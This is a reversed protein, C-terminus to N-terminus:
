TLRFQKGCFSCIYKKEAKHSQKHKYLNKACTFGRSCVDCIFNYETNHTKIHTSLIDKTTYTKQCIDCSYRVGLHDRKIHRTLGEKNSFAKECKDCRYPLGDVCSHKLTHEKFNKKVVIGCINCLHPKESKNKKKPPKVIPEEELESEELIAEPSMPIEYDKDGDNDSEQKVENEQAELKIGSLINYSEIAKLQFEHWNKVIQLCKKCIYNPLNDNWCVEVYQAELITKIENSAYKATKQGSTEKFINVLSENNMCFRCVFGVSSQSIDM